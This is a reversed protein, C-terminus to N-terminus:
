WLFPSLSVSPLRAPSRRVLSKRWDSIEYNLSELRRRFAIIQSDSRLAPMAFQLFMIGASYVDFRDPNNLRWLIPSLLAAVPAPPAKPTQTSM